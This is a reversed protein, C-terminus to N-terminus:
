GADIAVRCIRELRAAYDAISGGAEVNRRAAVGIREARERDQLLRRIAGALAEADGPPVLVIDDGDHVTEPAWLGRTRSLVVPRGCAMAQLTVSQGSPQPVDRVPVVVVAARRYIERVEQDSLVQRHWDAEDWTVNPPLSEPRPHRTLVRVRVPIQPAAALLTTWDRNGDNGIAVVENSRGADAPTWYEHDVGFCNVHVRGSLSPARDLLEALEGAGYLISHQRRLLATTTRRRIPRWRHNVLGAVIGVLPRRLLGLRHWTALAVSTGTTTAVVVDVTRLRPLLARTGSLVAGGLHPPLYGRGAGRDVLRGVRRAPVAPDVEFHFTEHGQRELEVAGFLFETPAEGVQAAELRAIRGPYHVFAIRM